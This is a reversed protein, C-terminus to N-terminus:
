KDAPQRRAADGAQDTPNGLSTIREFILKTVEQVVDRERRRAAYHTLDIPEGYRIRARHRLFLGVFPNPHPTTGSIHCPIVRAGSHLAIMGVGPKPQSDAKEFEGTPFVGLCGGNRLVHLSERLFARGPRRRDIPICRVLRMFWNAIPARYYKEEVLFGVIRPVTAQIVLPDIGSAHNAALIVPGTRPLTCPGIREARWWFRAVFKVINHWFWVVPRMTADRTFIRWAWGLAVVFAVTCGGLLYPIYLDLNPVHPLGLAGSAAVMAGMTAMDSVGFVRGRRSDPVILQISAMITVLLAAGAGGIFFLCVGTLLKGLECTFAVDLLGIWLAAGSLAGLVALQMPLTPGLITMVAAGTALGIGIIGRYIGAASYDERYFKQVIAPIVSIVIGAAAWFLTGLLILQLVRRHSFVYRFGDAVPKWVGELPTHPTQRSRSMMILSVFIASLVFTAANIRYNWIAGAKAVLIGGLVASLITGITGLASIMANARVLQDDRVLTPLLAQRAPSFFSALAGVMALPIVIAYDGLGRPELWHELTSVMWALNVVIAARLLDAAIMISRRSLRDSLWGAIPALIVFPLFFGFSILAQVRTGDTRSLADREKLLAIESLHDGIAAVGYAAWLMVFNSNRILLNPMSSQPTTSM